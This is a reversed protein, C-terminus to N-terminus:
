LVDSIWGKKMWTSITKNSKGTYSALESCSMFIQDKKLKYKSMSKFKDTIIVSKKPSGLMGGIKSDNKRKNNEYELIKSLIKTVDDKCNKLVTIKGSPNYDLIVEDEVKKIQDKLDNYIFGSTFEIMNDVDEKMNVGNFLYDRLEPLIEDYKTAKWKYKTWYNGLVKYDAVNYNHYCYWILYSYILKELKSDKSNDGQISNKYWEFAAIEGYDLEKDNYKQLIENFLSISHRIDNSVIKDIISIFIKSPVNYYLRKITRYWDDFKNIGTYDNEKGNLLDVLYQRKMGLRENALDKMYDKIIKVKSLDPEFEYIEEDFDDVYEELKSNKININSWYDISVSLVAWLPIDEEKDIKFTSDRIVISNNRNTKDNFNYRINKEKYRLLKNYCGNIDNTSQIISLVEINKANRFRGFVQVDESYPNGAGNLNNSVIICCANDIEDNLDNGVGFYVSSILLDYEGMIHNRDIYEMSSGDYQGREKVKKHYIAVKYDNDFLSAFANAKDLSINSCYVYTKIDKSLRDHIMNYLYELQFTKEKKKWDWLFYKYSIHRKDKKIINFTKKIDWIKYEDLPTATQVIIVCDNSIEKVKNIFEILQNGRFPETTMLHSEDIIIYDFQTCQEKTLQIFHVYNTVYLYSKDLNLAFHKTGVIDIIDPHTLKTTIISNYPETMLTPKYSLANLIDDYKADKRNTQTVTKGTGTGSKILYIGPVNNIKKLINDYVDSLYEDDNLKIDIFDGKQKAISYKGYRINFGCYTNLFEIVENSPVWEDRPVISHNKKDVVTYNQIWRIVGAEEADQNYFNDTKWIDIVTEEDYMCLMTHITSEITPIEVLQGNILDTHKKGHGFYFPGLCNELKNGTENKTYSKSIYKYKITHNLDSEKIELEDTQKTHEIVWDGIEGKYKDINSTGFIEDDYIYEDLEDFQKQKFNPNLLLKGTHMPTINMPQEPKYMADDFFDKLPKIKELDLENWIDKLESLIIYLKIQYNLQYMKIKRIIMKENTLETDYEWYGNDNKIMTVDQIESSTYIHIGKASTSETVCVFWHYKCLKKFLRVMIKKSYDSAQEYTINGVLNGEKDYHMVDFDGDFLQGGLWNLYSDYSLENDKYKKKYRFDTFSWAGYAGDKLKFTADPNDKLKQELKIEAKRQAKYKYSDSCIYDFLLGYMNNNELMYEKMKEEPISPDYGTLNIGKYHIGIPVKKLENLVDIYEKQAINEM